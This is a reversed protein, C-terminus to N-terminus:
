DIGERTLPCCNGTDIIPYEGWDPRINMNTAECFRTSSSNQHLPRNMQSWQPGANAAEANSSAHIHISGAIRPELDNLM